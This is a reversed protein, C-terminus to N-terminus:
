AWFHGAHQLLRFWPERLTRWNGSTGAWVSPTGISPRPTSTAGSTTPALAQVELTTGGFWGLLADALSSAHTGAFDM